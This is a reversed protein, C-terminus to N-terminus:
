RRLLRNSDGQSGGRNPLEKEMWANQVCWWKSAIHDKHEHHQSLRPKLIVLWHVVVMISPDMQPLFVFHHWYEILFGMYFRPLIADELRLKNCQGALSSIRGVFDECKFAHYFRSNEGSNNPWTLINTPGLVGFGWGGFWWFVLLLSHGPNPSQTRCLSNRAMGSSQLSITQYSASKIYKCWHM